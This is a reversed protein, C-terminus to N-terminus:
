DNEKQLEEKFKVKLCQEYKNLYRLNDGDQKKMIDIHELMTMVDWSKDLSLKMLREAEVSNGMKEHYLGCYLLRWCDETETKYLYEKAEDYRRMLYLVYGYSADVYSPIDEKMEFCKKYYIEAMGCDM